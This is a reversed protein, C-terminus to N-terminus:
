ELGMISVAHRISDIKKPMSYFSSNILKLVKYSMGIDKRIIEDLESLECEPSQIKTLIELLALQNPKLQKGEIIVPKSFFYGQFYDFGLELCHEFEERTEVKEALLKASFGKLTELQAVLEEKSVGMIDVKIIKAYPLLGKNKDTVVYDDLAVIFGNQALEKIGSICEPHADIDELVEVIVKDPDMPLSIEGTVYDRTLNIFAYKGQTINEIGFEIFSNIILESTALNGDTIDCWNEKSNRYLLEYGFVKEQRDFIPQRAM